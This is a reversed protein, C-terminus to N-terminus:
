DNFVQAQWEKFSEMYEKILSLIAKIKGKKEEEMERYEEEEEEEEEPNGMQQKKTAREKEEKKNRNDETTEEQQLHEAATTAPQPSRSGLQDGRGDTHKQENADRMRSSDRMRPQASKSPEALWKQLGNNVSRLSRTEREAAPRKPCTLGEGKVEKTKEEERRVKAKSKEKKTAM